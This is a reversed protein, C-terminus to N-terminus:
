GVKLSRLYAVVQCYDPDCAPHFARIYRERIWPRFGSEWDLVFRDADDFHEIYGSGHAGMARQLYKLQNADPRNIAM